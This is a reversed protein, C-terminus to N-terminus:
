ELYVGEVDVKPEISAYWENLAKEMADEISTAKVTILVSDTPGVRVEYNSTM